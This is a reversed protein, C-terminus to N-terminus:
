FYRDHKLACVFLNGYNIVVTKNINIYSLVCQFMISLARNMFYINLLNYTFLANFIKIHISVM